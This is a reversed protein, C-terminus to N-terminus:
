LKSKDPNRVPRTNAPLFPGTHTEQKMAKANDNGAVHEKILSVNTRTFDHHKNIKLMLFHGPGYVDIVTKVVDWHSYQINEKVDKDFNQANATFMVGILLATTITLNKLTKM